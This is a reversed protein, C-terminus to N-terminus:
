AHMVVTTCRECLEPHGAHTGVARSWKWCRVCKKGAAPAVQVVVDGATEGAAAEPGTDFRIESVILLDALQPGFSALFGRSEEPCAITVMAGLANGIRKEARATELSKNVIERVEWLRNWRAILPDDSWEAVITPLPALFVSGQETGGGPLHDWVEEATFSLIPAMMRVLTEGVCWMTTQAARRTVSAAGECYLRDKCIDLYRASLQVTCFTNVAHYVHHFEYGDYARRCRVVLRNSEALIWRDLSELAAYPVRDRAPSFDHLNGLLFRWTNRIKRYADALRTIIEDSVRLDGSYDEAAVWLRLIEAGYRSLVQDPPLYNKASKSYKKGEGDVVFGHTLVSRYPAVGETELGVLLSTHFWGRHQDSGELYLDAPGQMGLMQRIVAAFSSGSDFWVDLIDYEKTFAGSEHCHPCRYEPPLLASLPETYWCDAGATAIRDAVRRVFDATTSRAGCAGCRVAILPVGWSRQRSICWDPRNEMMGHIRARGWAPIWTVADIAALAARRLGTSEMSVFWQETVRFLIPQKCRWCHPYQHEVKGAHILRDEARLAELIRPNATGTNMGVLWPLGVDPTFAGRDDIPAFAELGYTMGLAFDEEGHGPAVHVCGSGADLTVMTGLMVLSPRDVLPHRAHRRELDASRVPGLVRYDTRGIDRFMAECRGEAVIWVERDVAVASYSLDPHLAVGLNAPITWPTTTWIVVFVPPDGIGWRARLDDIDTLPFKVYISPSTHTAYEVEAEALATQCSPCWYIPRRGSYVAGREVVAAFRRAIEAQYRFDMTCYPTEWAALCGLRRFEERQIHIYQEAYARCAKRVAIVDHDRHRGGLGKEVALEIPLGHCDWGPLFPTYAGAMARSKIVIDKLVKNLIHGFHIHGNAYPPGDHLVFPPALKRAALMADYVRGERWREVMLPERQALEAKMPFATQPLNLTSKYDMAAPVIM